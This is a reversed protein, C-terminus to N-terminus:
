DGPAPGGDFHLAVHRVIAGPELDLDVRVVAAATRMPKSTAVGNVILPHELLAREGEHVEVELDRLSVLAGTEGVNSIVVDVVRGASLRLQAPVKTPIRQARRREDAM